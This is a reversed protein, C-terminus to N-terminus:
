AGPRRMSSAVMRRRAEVIGLEDPAQGRGLNANNPGSVVESKLCAVVATPGSIRARASVISVEVVDVARLERANGQWRESDKAARSPVKGSPRALM